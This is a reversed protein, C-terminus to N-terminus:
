GTLYINSDRAPGAAEAFQLEYLRAYIGRKALLEARRPGVGKLYMVETTPTLRM